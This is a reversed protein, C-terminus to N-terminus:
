PLLPPYSSRVWAGYTLLISQISLSGCFGGSDPWQHRPTLPAVRSFTSDDPPACTGPYVCEDDDLDSSGLAGCHLALLSLAIARLVRM